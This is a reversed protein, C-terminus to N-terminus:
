PAQEHPLYAPQRQRLALGGCVILLVLLYDLTHEFYHAAVMAGLGLDTQGHEMVDGSVSVVALYAPILFVMAVKMWAARTVGDWAGGARPVPPAARPVPPAAADRTMAAIVLGVGLLLTVPAHTLIERAQHGAYRVDAFVDASVGFVITLGIFAAWGAPAWFPHTRLPPAGPMLRAAIPAVSAAFGFWLTSLWHYRWHTGYGSLDDRTRYQALDHFASAWGHTRASLIMAGAVIVGALLLALGGGLTDRRLTSGHGPRSAVGGSIGLLFLAYVVATPVERLFHSFYLVTQGFTYRGSEHVVVNWLAPTGHDAALWAFSALMVVAPVGFCVALATRRATRGPTRGVAHAAAHVRAESM